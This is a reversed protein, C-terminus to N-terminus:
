MAIFQMISLGNIGARIVVIGFLVPMVTYAITHITQGATSGFKDKMAKLKGFKEPSKIRMIWTYLGFLIIVVGLGITVFDM